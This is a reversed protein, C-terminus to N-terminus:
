ILAFTVKVYAANGTVEIIRGVIKPTSSQYRSAGGSWTITGTVTITLDDGYGKGYIESHVCQDSQVIKGCGVPILTVRDNTAITEYSSDSNDVDEIYKKVIFDSKAADSLSAPNSILKTTGSVYQYVFRGQTTASGAKADGYSVGAYPTLDKLM